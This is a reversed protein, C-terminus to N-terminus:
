PEARCEMFRAAADWPGGVVAAEVRAQAETLSSEGAESPTLDTIRQEIRPRVARPAFSLCSRSFRRSM